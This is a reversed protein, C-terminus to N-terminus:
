RISRAKSAVQTRIPDIVSFGQLAAISRIAFVIKLQQLLNRLCKFPKRKLKGTMRCPALEKEGISRDFLGKPLAVPLSVDFAQSNRSTDAGKYSGASHLSGVALDRCGLLFGAPAVSLLKM